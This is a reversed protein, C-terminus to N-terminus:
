PLPQPAPLQDLTRTVGIAFANVMADYFQESSAPIVTENPDTSVANVQRAEATVSFSKHQPVDMVDRLQVQGSIVSVDRGQMADYASALEVRDLEVEVKIGAAALRDEIRTTIAERVDKDVVSIRNAAAAGQAAAVPADVRLSGVGREEAAHAPLAAMLGLSVAAIAPSFITPKRFM